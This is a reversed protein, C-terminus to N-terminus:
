VCATQDFEDWNQWKSKADLAQRLQKEPEPYPVGFRKCLKRLSKEYEKNLLSSQHLAFKLDEVEDFFGQECCFFIVHVPKGCSLCQKTEIRFLLCM